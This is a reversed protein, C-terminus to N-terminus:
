SDYRARLRAAGERALQSARAVLQLCRIHMDIGYQGYLAPAQVYLGDSCATTLFLCPRFVDDEARPCDTAEVWAPPSPLVGHEILTQVDRQAIEALISFDTMIGFADMMQGSGTRVPHPRVHTEGPGAVYDNSAEAPMGALHTFKDRNIPREAM